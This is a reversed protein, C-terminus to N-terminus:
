RNSMRRISSIRYSMPHQDAVPSRFDTSTNNQRLSQNIRGLSPSLRGLQASPQRQRHATDCDDHPARGPTRLMTENAAIRFRM